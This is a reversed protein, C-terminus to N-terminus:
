GASDASLYVQPADRWETELKLATAKEGRSRRPDACAHLDRHERGRARSATACNPYDHGSPLLHTAFSHRLTDCSTPKHVGALFRPTSAYLRGSTTESPVGREPRGRALLRRYKSGPADGPPAILEYRRGSSGIPVREQLVPPSSPPLNDLPSTVRGAETHLYRMTTELSAHGMIVQVDRVYAGQRMAHTAYAHRLVHPTVLGDLGCRVAAAKVARQVNAEHCRWRVKEGSRPNACRSHSPFLWYWQWSMAAGPDKRALAGPLPVPVKDLHDQRWLLQARQIQERLAPMLSCPIAVVRDKGGKADRIVLESEALRVDKIRLSLPERVRLGCGYLLQVILRIPYGHQDQVQEIIKAVEAQAPATRVRQPTRVRLAQVSALPKRLVERYLFNIANFAQNQTSASGGRKAIQTLFREFKEESTLNPRRLALVFTAYRRIWNCYAAETAFAFHKRRLVSRSRDLILQLNM